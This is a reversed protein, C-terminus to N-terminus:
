EKMLEAFKRCFIQLECCRITASGKNELEVSLNVATCNPSDSDFSWHGHSVANRLQRLLEGLTECTSGEIRWAPWGMITLDSLRQPYLDLAKKGYDKKQKELAFVILGLLSNGTQAVVHVNHDPRAEAIYALNRLTRDAFGRAKNRSEM